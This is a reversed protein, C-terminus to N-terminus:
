SSKRFHRSVTLNEPTPFVANGYISLDKLDAKAWEYPYASRNNYALEMKALYTPDPKLSPHELLQDIEALMEEETLERETGM